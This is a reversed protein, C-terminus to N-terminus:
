SLCILVYFVACCVSGDENGGEMGMDTEIEALHVRGQRGVAEWEQHKLMLGELVAQIQILTDHNSKADIANQCSVVHEGAALLEQKANSLADEAVKQDQLTSDGINLHKALWDVGCLTGEYRLAQDQSQRRNHHDVLQESLTQTRSPTLPEQNKLLESAIKQQLDTKQTDLSAQAALRTEIAVLTEMAEREAATVRELRTKASALAQNLKAMSISALRDNFTYSSSTPEDRAKGKALGKLALTEELSLGPSDPICGRVLSLFETQKAQVGLKDPVPNNSLIAQLFTATFLGCSWHDHQRACKKHVSTLERGQHGFRDLWQRLRHEVKRCRAEGAM